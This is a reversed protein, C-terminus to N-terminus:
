VADADLGLEGLAHEHDELSEMPAVDVLPGADAQREAPLDDLEVASPDPYIGVHVPAGRNVQSERDVGLLWGTDSFLWDGIVIRSTSSSAPSTSMVLSASCALLTRLSSCTTLLPSSAM